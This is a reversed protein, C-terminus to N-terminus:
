YAFNYKQSLEYRIDDAMQERLYGGIITYPNEIWKATWEIGVSSLLGKERSNLVDEAKVMHMPQHLKECRRRIANFVNFLREKLRKEKEAEKQAEIAAAVRKHNMKVWLRCFEDKDVDAAMYMPEIVNYYEECTVNVKARDLFEKITM